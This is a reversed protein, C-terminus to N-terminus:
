TASLILHCSWPGFLDEVRLFLDFHMLAGFPCDFPIKRCLSDTEINKTWEGAGAVKGLDKRDPAVHRM